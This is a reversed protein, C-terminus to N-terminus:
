VRPKKRREAIQLQLIAKRLEAEALAFGAENKKEKMAEEAKKMAGEVAAIEIDDSKIAYDALITAKSNSFDLFGGTVAVYEEEEGNKVKMEGPKIKTFVSIHHPLIGLDGESGPVVVMDVDNSYVLREPTVIELHLKDM